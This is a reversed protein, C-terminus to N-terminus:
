TAAELVADAWSEVSHSAAVRERLQRGLLLREEPSRRGLAVLRDALGRADERDFRLEPELLTDFAPNSAVAPVCSACAEYVVKDTAGARMNNVLVDARALVAPVEARLVAHGLKVRRGLDLERVLRELEARHAREEATLAPGHVELRVDLGDDLALRIARLITELGKARSYRGLAVARLDPHGAGDSTCGFEALDIGHGIARVKESELPFTRRDVSLVVNSLREALRLTRSTSWHTYWLVVRAGVPRALPAALVAYIPCMHAVVAAPRPRRALEAALGRAFRLGRGLRTRAAFSRARCNPPLAEPVTRDALIMVEDARAALARVKPVTAALAPHGPDVHQTVFVIRV